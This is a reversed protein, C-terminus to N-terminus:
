VSNQSHEQVSVGNSAEKAYEVLRAYVAAQQSTPMEKQVFQIAAALKETTVNNSGYLKSNIPVPEAVPHSYHELWKPIPAHHLKEIDTFGYPKAPEAVVDFPKKQQYADPDRGVRGLPEIMTENIFKIAFSENRLSREELINEARYEGKRFATEGVIMRITRVDQMSTLHLDEHGLAEQPNHKYWKGDKGKYDQALADETTAGGAHRIPDGGAPLTLNGTMLAKGALSFNLNQNDQIGNVNKAIRNLNAELRRYEGAKDIEEFGKGPAEAWLGKVDPQAWVIGNPYKSAQQEYIATATPVHKVRFDYIEYVAEKLKNASEVSQAAKSYLSLDVHLKTNNPNIIDFGTIANTKEDIQLESVHSNGTLQTKAM